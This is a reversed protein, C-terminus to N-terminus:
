ASPPCPFFYAGQHATLAFGSSAHPSHDISLSAATRPIDLGHCVTKDASSRDGEKLRLPSVRHLWSHEPVLPLAAIDADFCQEFRSLMQKTITGMQDAMAGLTM